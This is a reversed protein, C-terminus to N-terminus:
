RRRSFVRCLQVVLLVTLSPNRIRDKAAHGSAGTNAQSLTQSINTAGSHTTGSGCGVLATAAVGIALVPIRLLRLRHLRSGQISRELRPSNVLDDQSSTLM